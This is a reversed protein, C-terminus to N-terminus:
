GPTGTLMKLIPRIWQFRVELLTLTGFILGYVLMRIIATRFVKRTEDRADRVGRVFDMLDDFDKPDVNYRCVHMNAVQAAVAAIDAETLVM